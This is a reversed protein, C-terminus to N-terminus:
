AQTRESTLEELHSYLTPLTRNHHGRVYFSEGGDRITRILITKLPRYYYRFDDRAPEQDIDNELPFLDFVATTFHRITEGRQRAVNRAMSLAKLYVEPGMVASGFCLLVGGELKRVSETFILFDDYSAQGTAAGDCNPHEHIIDYGLGVHVTLPVGLRYGAALVSIDKNPFDGEAIAKGVAEGFGLGCKVGDAVIRNIEGTEEWLGFQGIAIYEAVSETTAGILAMEYDHIVVAGNMAIHTVLGRRMMDILYRSAGARLLHAGMMLIVAAGNKRAEVIRAAIQPFAPDKLRNVPQDLTPFGSLRILHKRESLPKLELLTRDFRPYPM